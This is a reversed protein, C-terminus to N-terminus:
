RTQPQPTLSFVKYGHDIPHENDEMLRDGARNCREITISSIVPELQNEICFDYAYRSKDRDIPEELQILIFKRSGNDEMNLEMVAQATTGSGAFFDLIIGDDMSLLGLLNRVLKVPKPNSFIGDGLITKLEMNAQRTSGFDQYNWFTHPRIHDSAESLFKKRQPVKKGNTDLLILDDDLLKQLTKKSYRPYRGKPPSWTQGNPFTFEYQSDETGSKAHLSSLLYRGRPDNDCNKYPKKQKETRMFGQIISKGTEKDYCLKRNKSFVIIFECNTSFFKSDNKVSDMGQWSITALFNNEGFIEDMVIRLNHAENDDISVFIVGDDALLDRALLLRPYMYGLWGSHTDSNDRTPCIEKFNDKYIFNKNRTNYPPDIYIAKIRSDYDRKLIKLADLNDGSIIVNGTDYYNKSLEKDISLGMVTPVEAAKKASEKGIFDLSYGESNSVSTDYADRSM